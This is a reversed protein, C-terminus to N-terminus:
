LGTRVRDHAGDVFVRGSTRGRGRPIAPAKFIDLMDGSSSAVEKELGSTSGTEAFAALGDSAPQGLRFM